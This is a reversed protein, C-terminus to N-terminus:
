KPKLTQVPSRKTYLYCGGQVGIFCVSFFLIVIWLMIFGTIWILKQPNKIRKSAASFVITVLTLLVFPLTTLIQSTREKTDLIKEDDALFKEKKQKAIQQKEACSLKDAEKTTTTQDEQM